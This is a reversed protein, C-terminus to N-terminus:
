MFVDTPERRTLSHNRAGPLDIFCLDTADPDKIDLVVVNKSFKLMKKDNLVDRQLEQRTKGFFSAVPVHPSLIAAQARRLWLDVERKETLTPGFSVTRFSANPGYEWRLSIRCSWPDISRSM